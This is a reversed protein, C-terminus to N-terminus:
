EAFYDKITKVVNRFILPKVLYAVPDLDLARKMTKEDEYGTMFVVPIKKIKQIEIVAEIGNMDGALQIDMIIMDPPDQRVLDVAGEGTSVLGSVSFGSSEFIEKIISATVAEDEVIVLKKM